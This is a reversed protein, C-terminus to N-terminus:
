DELLYKKVHDIMLNNKATDGSSMHVAETGDPYKGIVIVQEYNEGKANELVRGCPIDHSTNGNFFVVNDREKDLTVKTM